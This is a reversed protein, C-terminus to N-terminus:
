EWDEKALKKIKLQVDEPAEQLWQKALKCGVQLGRGSEQLKKKMGKALQNTHESPTMMKEMTADDGGAQVEEHVGDDLDDPISEPQMREKEAEVARVFAPDAHIKHYYLETTTLRRTGKLNVIAKRSKRESGPAGHLLNGKINYLRTRLTQHRM